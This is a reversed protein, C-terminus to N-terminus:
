SYDGLDTRVVKEGEKELPVDSNKLFMKLTKVSDHKRDYAGSSRIQSVLIRKSKAGKSVARLVAELAKRQKETFEEM